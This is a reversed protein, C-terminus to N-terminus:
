HHVDDGVYRCVRVYMNGMSDSGLYQCADPETDVDMSVNIEPFEIVTGGEGDAYIVIDEYYRGMSRWALTKLNLKYRYSDVIMYAAKGTFIMATAKDFEAEVLSIRKMEITDLYIVFEPKVLMNDIVCGLEM